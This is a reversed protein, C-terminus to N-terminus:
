TVPAPRSVPEFTVFGILRQLCLKGEERQVTVSVCQAPCGDFSFVNGNRVPLCDCGLGESVQIGGKGVLFLATLSPWPSHISGPYFKAQM